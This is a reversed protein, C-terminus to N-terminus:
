LLEGSRVTGLFIFAIRIMLDQEKIDMKVNGELKLTLKALIGEFFSNHLM